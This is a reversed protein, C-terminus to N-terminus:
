KMYKDMLYSLSPLYPNVIYIIGMAIGILSLFLYLVMSKKDHLLKKKQKIFTYILTFSFVYIM